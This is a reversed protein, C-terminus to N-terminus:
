VGSIRVGSHTRYRRNVAILVTTLAELHGALRLPGADIGRMGPVQTALGCVLAKAEADDSCVLVDTSVSLNTGLLRRASVHHFAAVIRSSPLVAAAEEAASGEPVAIGVAGRDDFRMPNVCDIVIRGALEATLGTLLERHGDYPVTVLVMEAGAAAANAAGTVDLKRRPHVARLEDAAAQAKAADRSGLVVPHGAMAFRLALGRGLPGTGGLVGIRVGELSVVLGGPIVTM